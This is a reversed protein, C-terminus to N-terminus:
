DFVVEAAETGPLDLADRIREALTLARRRGSFRDDAESLLAAYQRAMGVSSPDSTLRLAERGGERSWKSLQNKFREEESLRMMEGRVDVEIAKLQALSELYLIVAEQFLEPALLQDEITKGRPLDVVALGDREIVAKLYSKRDRGGQDGDFLLAVTPSILGEHLIQVLSEANAADKTAMISLPNLDMDLAGIAVLKALDAGLLIPDSDGEALLVKSAFLVTGPLALGLANIASQWRGVYPKEDVITGREGKRILRHRAPFNKNVLFISHTTYVIQNSQALSELVRLLDYQGEPHLYIGPEDFLWIFSRARSESQRAFLITKLSFFHTFGSSRRSARVFRDDVSPDNIKLEITSGEHDLEFGLNQGQTWAERLAINLQTTAKSLRKTTRDDHVFLDKWESRELGAYYFIGRMFDQETTAISKLSVSDSIADGSQILEVRPIQERVIDPLPESEGTSWSILRLDSDVGVRELEIRSPMSETNLDSASVLLEDDLLKERGAQRELAAFMRDVASREEVTQQHDQEAAEVKEQAAVVAAELQDLQDATAAGSAVLEDRERTSGALRKGADSLRAASRKLDSAAQEVRAQFSEPTPADLQHWSLYADALDKQQRAVQVRDQLKALASSLNDRRLRLSRVEQSEAPRQDPPLEAGADVLAELEAEAAQLQEAVSEAENQFEFLREATMRATKVRGADVERSLSWQELEQQEDEDLDLWYRVSPLNEGDDISDWNLDDDVSFPQDANLHLLSRLLNTKGHDNAGLLVTVRGDFHIELPDRVSRYGEVRLKYLSSM